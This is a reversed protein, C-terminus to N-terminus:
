RGVDLVDILILRHEYQGLHGFGHGFDYPDTNAKNPAVTDFQGTLMVETPTNFELRQLKAWATSNKREDYRFVFERPPIPASRLKEPVYQHPFAKQNAQSFLAGASEVWVMEDHKESGCPQLTSREFSSVYCGKVTILQHSYKVPSSVIQKLPLVVPRSESQHTQRCGLM